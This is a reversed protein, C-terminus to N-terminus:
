SSVSLLRRDQRRFEWVQQDVAGAADGDAHGGVDRRVIEAFDDVGADRQDVIGRERDVLEDVDDRPRIKRGAADDESALADARGIMEAAARDHHAALDVISAIRLSRSAMMM